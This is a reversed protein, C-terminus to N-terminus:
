RVGMRQDYHANAIQNAERDLGATNRLLPIPPHSPDGYEAAQAESVMPTGRVGLWLRGDDAWVDIHTAANKWRDTRAAAEQVNRAIHSMGLSVAEQVADDADQAYSRLAALFDAGVHLEDAM